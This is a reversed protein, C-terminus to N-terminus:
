ALAELMLSWHPGSPNLLDFHGAGGVVEVTCDDSFRESHWSPVIDDHDGHILLVSGFPTALSPPAGAEIVARLSPHDDQARALDTLPALGIMRFDQSRQHAWLGLYGGASHGLVAVDDKVTGAYRIAMEVDHGSAPWVPANGLRRYEINMTHFGVENLSFAMSEMTDREWPGLWLGGHVLVILGHSKDGTTLDAINYEAPGYRVTEFPVRARNQLHRMADRYGIAGRGSIQRAAAPGVQSVSRWAERAHIDSLHVEVTPIDISSVADAIAVSTHTYGGPNLIIADCSTAADHISDVLSGESNSQMFSVEIGLKAAWIGIREELQSLTENGYIHPQRRGLLNLNPGHIVAIQM